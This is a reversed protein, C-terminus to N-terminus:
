RLELEYISVRIPPVSVRAPAQGVSSEVIDVVPKQGVVNSADVGPAAMRWLKGPGRLEVGRVSLDLEQASEAQNVV